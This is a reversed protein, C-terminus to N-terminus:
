NILSDASRHSGDAPALSPTTQNRPCQEQTLKALAILDSMQDEEDSNCHTFAWKSEFGKTKFYSICERVECDPSVDDAVAPAVTFNFLSLTLLTMQFFNLKFM